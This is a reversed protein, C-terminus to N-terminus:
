LRKTTAVYNFRRYVIKVQMFGNLSTQFADVDYLFTDLELVLILVLSMVTAM